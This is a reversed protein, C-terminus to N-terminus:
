RPRFYGCIAAAAFILLMGIWNRRVPKEKIFMVSFVFGFPITTSYLPSFISAPLGDVGAMLLIDGVVLTLASILSYFFGHRTLKTPTFPYFFLLFVTTAAMKIAVFTSYPVGHIAVKQAVITTAWIISILIGVPIAPKWREAGEAAPSLLVVGFILLILVPIMAPFFKEELFIISLFVAWISLSNSLTGVRHMSDKKMAWFFIVAGIGWAVIGISAIFIFRKFAIDPLWKHTQYVGILYCIPAGLSFRYFCVKIPHIDRLAVKGATQAIAVIATGLLTYIIYIL